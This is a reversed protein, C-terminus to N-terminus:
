NKFKFPSFNLDLSLLGSWASSQLAESATVGFDHGDIFRSEVLGSAIQRICNQIQRTRFIPFLQSEVAFIFGGRKYYKIDHSLPASKETLFLIQSRLLDGEWGLANLPRSSDKSLELAPLLLTDSFNSELGELSEPATCIQAIPGAMESTMLRAFNEDSNANETPLSQGTFQGNAENLKIHQPGIGLVRQTLAHGVEHKAVAM